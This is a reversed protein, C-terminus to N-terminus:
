SPTSSSSFTGGCGSAPGVSFDADVLKANRLTTAGSSEDFTFDGPSGQLSGSSGTTLSIEIPDSSSGITCEGGLLPNNLRVVVPLTLAPGNEILLNSTNLGIETRGSTPGALEVTATVALM